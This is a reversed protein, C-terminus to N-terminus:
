DLDQAASLQEYDQVVALMQQLSCGAKRVRKEVRARVHAYHCRASFPQPHLSFYPPRYGREVCGVGSIREHDFLQLPRLGSTQEQCSGAVAVGGEGERRAARLGHRLYAALKLAYRKGYLQGCGSHASQRQLLDRLPEYAGELEQRTSAAPYYMPLM